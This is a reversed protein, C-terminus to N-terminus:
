APQGQNDSPQCPLPADLPVDALVRCVNLMHTEGDMLLFQVLEYDDMLSLGAARRAKHLAVLRDRPVVVRFEPYLASV